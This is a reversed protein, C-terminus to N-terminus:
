HGPGEFFTLFAMIGIGLVLMFFQLLSKKIGVTKHLEPVIDSGAIYIFNGAAFAAILPVAFENLSSIWFAAIGGLFATCASLANVLLARGRSFGASILLGFDGIEQPIEHLMIAVTTAVGLAPSILFAGGIIVGDIFNHVGDSVLVLHGVPHIHAHDPAFEAEGHSHHWRLFKELVFFSLIGLIVALSTVLPASNEEFAEPILHILADGLLAGAALAVLIFVSKRLREERLSLTFVGMLSIISVLAIAILTLLLPSM